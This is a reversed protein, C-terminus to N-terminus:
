DKVTSLQAYRWGNPTAICQRQRGNINVLHFQHITIGQKSAHERMAKICSSGSAAMGTDKLTPPWYAREMINFRKTM